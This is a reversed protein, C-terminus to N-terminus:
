NQMCDTASSFIKFPFKTIFQKCDILYNVEETSIKHWVTVTFSERFPWASVGSLFHGM